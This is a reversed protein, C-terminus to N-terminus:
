KEGNMVDRLTKEARALQRDLRADVSGRPCDIVCGGPEITPDETITLKKAGRAIARLEQSREDLAVADRPHTRITLEEEDRVKKMGDLAARFAMEPDSEATERVIRRAVALALRIIEPGAQAVVEDREARAGDLVKQAEDILKQSDAKAAQFAEERGRTLGEQYAAESIAAAGERAEAVIKGAKEQAQDVLHAAAAEGAVAGGEVTVASAPLHVAAMDSTIAIERGDTGDRVLVKVSSGAISVLRPMGSYLRRAKIIRSSM